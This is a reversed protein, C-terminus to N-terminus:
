ECHPLSQRKMTFGRTKCTTKELVKRKACRERISNYLINQFFQFNSRFSCARNKSAFSFGDTVYLESLGEGPPSQMNVSSTLKWTKMSWRWRSATWYSIFRYILAYLLKTSGIIEKTSYLSYKQKTIDELNTTAPKLNYLKREKLLCDCKAVQYIIIIIKKFGLNHYNYTFQLIFFQM